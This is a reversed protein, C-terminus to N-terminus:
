AADEQGAPSRWGALAYRNAYRRRGEAIADPPVNKDLFILGGREDRAFGDAALEEATETKWYPQGDVLEHAALMDIVFQVWHEITNGWQDRWLPKKPVLSIPTDSV